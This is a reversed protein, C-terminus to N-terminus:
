AVQYRPSSASSTPPPSAGCLLDSIELRFDSIQSKFNSIRSKLNSIRSKLDQLGSRPRSQWGCRRRAVIGNMGSAEWTSDSRWQMRQPWLRRVSAHAAFHPSHPAATSRDRIGSCRFTCSRRDTRPSRVASSNNTRQITISRPSLIVDSYKSRVAPSRRISNKIRIRSMTPSGARSPSTGNPM